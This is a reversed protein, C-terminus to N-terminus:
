YYIKEVSTTREYKGHPTKQGWTKKQVFVASRTEGFKQHLQETRREVLTKHPGGFKRIGKGVTTTPTKPPNAYALDERPMTSVSSGRLFALESPDVFRRRLPPADRDLITTHNNLFVAAMKSVLISPSISATDTSSNSDVNSGAEGDGHYYADKDCELDQNQKTKAEHKKLLALQEGLTKNASGSMKDLTEKTVIQDRFLPTKKNLCPLSLNDSDDRADEYSNTHGDCVSYSCGQRTTPAQKLLLKLHEKSSIREVGETSHLDKTSVPKNSMGRQYFDSRSKETSSNDDESSFSNTFLPDSNGELIATSPCSSAMSPKSQIGLLNDGGETSKPKSSSRKHFRHYHQQNRDGLESLWNRLEKVKMTLVPKTKPEESVPPLRSYASASKNSKPFRTKTLKTGSSPDTQLKRYSHVSFM